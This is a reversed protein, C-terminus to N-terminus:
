RFGGGGPVGGDDSVASRGAGSLDGSGTKRLAQRMTEVMLEGGAAPSPSGSGRVVNGDISRVPSGLDLGKLSAPPSYSAMPPSRMPTPSPSRNGVPSMSLAPTNLVSERTGPLVSLSGLASHQSAEAQHESHVVDAFSIFSLRRVDTTNDINGYTSASDDINSAQSSNVNSAGPAIASTLAVDPSGGSVAASAPQHASHMVIEVQDPNLHDDTIAQTSATLAPPIHDETQIHAPLKHSLDDPLISEQVNREFIQSSAPSQTRPSSSRLRSPSAAAAMSGRQSPSVPTYRPERPPSAPRNMTTDSPPAAISPVSPTNTDSIKSSLKDESDKKNTLRSFLGRKKKKKNDLGVASSSEDNGADDDSASENPQQSTSQRPPDPLSTHQSAATSLTQTM